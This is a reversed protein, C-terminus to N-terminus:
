WATKKPTPRCPPRGSGMGPLSRSPTKVATSRSRSAVRSFGTAMPLFTTTMPPPSTAKSAPRVATRRPASCTCSTQMSSSAVMGAEASSISSPRSSDILKMQEHMGVATTAPGSPRAALTSNVAQVRPSASARPQRGGTGRSLVKLSITQSVTIKAVPWPMTSSKALPAVSRATSRLWITMSLCVWAVPRAPTNAPPSAAARPGQVAMSATAAPRRPARAM